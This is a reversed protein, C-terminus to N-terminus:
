EEGVLSNCKVVERDEEGRVAAMVTGARADGEVEEFLIIYIVVIV